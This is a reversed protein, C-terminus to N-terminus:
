ITSPSYILLVAPLYIALSFPLFAFDLAFHTTHKMFTDCFDMFSLPLKVASPITDYM